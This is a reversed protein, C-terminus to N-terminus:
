AVHKNAVAPSRNWLQLATVPIVAPEMASSGCGGSECGGSECGGSDCAAPQEAAAEVPPEVLSLAADTYPALRLQRTIRRRKLELEVAFRGLSAYATLLEWVYRPYFTLPNERKMGPRRATRVKRRLVGSQLPHVRLFRYSGYYGLITGVLRKVGSRTAQARRLMTEIHEPSYYLHWARSYIDSWEDASMRPHRMTVHEADYRNLDPHMWEGRLHMDRHDASGPLPTMVFFELIDVPLERQILKIDREISEVTDAPFGLIYGAFTIVGQARWALLMKRYEHINNQYKKAAALNEPNVSEMGIFVRSCGARAAKEIFGPIKHCMTDVQIMLKLRLGENERLEILRDFIPEWNKNRALNDDTIFFRQVGQAAYTRVIREVDDADRHRSKRGQVNIITCFSCRFPCGRGADFSTFYFTKRAIEQPLFPMVQGELDPLDDLFNYLPKLKGAFADRLLEDLRGEAEGAFLTVGLEQAERLESPLEPLMSICGSVHFGGIAVPIGAARFEKALEAARPYQNSQVGALVVLGRGGARQINRIIQRTPVVTHMEDYGGIKIEVDPGLVHRARADDALAWVCALSNSPVFARWWQIVYGDDDYHSPKIIEVVFPQATKM